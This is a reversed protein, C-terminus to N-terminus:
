CKSIRAKTFNGAGDELFEIGLSRYLKLQIATYDLPLEYEVNRNALAEAERKLQEVALALSNVSSELENIAHAAEFKERDLNELRQTHTLGDEGVTPKSADAKVLEMKRSLARLVNQDNKLEREWNETGEDFDNNIRRILDLDSSPQLTHMTQQSIALTEEITLDSM